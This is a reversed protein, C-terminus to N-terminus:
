YSGVYVVGDVVTPSSSVRDTAGSFSWVQDGNPTTEKAVKLREDDPLADTISSVTTIQANETNVSDRIADTGRDPGTYE